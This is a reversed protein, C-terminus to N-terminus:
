KFQNFIQMIAPRYRKDQEYRMVDSDASGESSSDSSSSSSSSSDDVHTAFKVKKRAPENQGPSKTKKSSESQNSQSTIARYNQEMKKSLKKWSIGESSSSSTDSNDDYEAATKAPDFAQASSPEAAHHMTAMSTFPSVGTHAYVPSSITLNALRTAPSINASQVGMMPSNNDPQMGFAQITALALSSLALFKIVKM